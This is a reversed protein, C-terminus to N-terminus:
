STTYHSQDMDSIHPVCSTKLCRTNLPTGRNVSARMRVLIVFIGSIRAKRLETVECHLWNM